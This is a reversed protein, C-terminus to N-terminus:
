VASSNELISILEKGTYQKDITKLTGNKMTAVGMVVAKFEDSRYDGTVVLAGVSGNVNVMNSKAFPENPKKNKIMSILNKRDSDKMEIKAGNINLM